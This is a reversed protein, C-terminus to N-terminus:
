RRHEFVNVSKKERKWNMVKRLYLGPVQEDMTKILIGEKTVQTVTGYFNGKSEDTTYEGSSTRYIAGYPKLKDSM